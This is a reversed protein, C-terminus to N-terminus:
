VIALFYKSITMYINKGPIWGLPPHFHSHYVRLLQALEALELLAGRNDLDRQEVPPVDPPHWCTLKRPLLAVISMELQSLLDKRGLM